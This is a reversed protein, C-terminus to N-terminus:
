PGLVITSVAIREPRGGDAPEYLEIEHPGRAAGSPVAVTLFLETVEPTPSAAYRLLRYPAPQEDFRVELPGKRDRHRYALVPIREGASATAPTVFRTCAGTPESSQPAAAGGALVSIALVAPSWRRTFERMTTM